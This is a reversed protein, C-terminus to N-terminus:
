IIISRSNSEKPNIRIVLQPKWIIIFLITTFLLTIFSIAIERVIGFIYELKPIPFRATMKVSISVSLIILGHAQVWISFFAIDAERTVILCAINFSRIPPAGMWTSGAEM